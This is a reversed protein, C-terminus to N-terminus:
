QIVWDIGSITFQNRKSRNSKSFVTLKHEFTFTNIIESRLETTRIVALTIQKIQLPTITVFATFTTM